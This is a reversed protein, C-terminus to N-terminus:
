TEKMHKLVVDRLRRYFDNPPTTSLYHLTDAVDQLTLEKKIAIGAMDSRYTPNLRGSQKLAAKELEPFSM